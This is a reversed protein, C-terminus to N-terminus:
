AIVNSMLVIISAAPQLKRLPPLHFLVRRGFAATDERLVGASIMVKMGVAKFHTSKSYDGAGPVAAFVKNMLNAFVDYSMPPQLCRSVLEPDRLWPSNLDIVDVGLAEAIKEKLSMTDMELVGAGGGGACAASAGNAASGSDSNGGGAGAASSGNAASGGDVSGGGAGAAGAASAASAPPAPRGVGAGARRAKVSDRLVKLTLGSAADGLEARLESATMKWPALVPAAAPATEEGSAAARYPPAGSALQPSGAAAAASEEGALVRPEQGAADDAMEEDGACAVANEERQKKRAERLAKKLQPVSGAADTGLWRLEAQLDAMRMKGVDPQRM